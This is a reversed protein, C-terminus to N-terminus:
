RGFLWRRQFRRAFRRSLLLFELLFSAGLVMLAVISSMKLVAIISSDSLIRAGECDDGRCVGIDEGRGRGRGHEHAEKLGACPSIEEAPVAGIGFIAAACRGCLLGRVVMLYRLLLGLVAVPAIINAVVTINAANNVTLFCHNLDLLFFLFM